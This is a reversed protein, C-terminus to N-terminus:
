RQRVLKYDVNVSDAALVWNRLLSWAYVTKLFM